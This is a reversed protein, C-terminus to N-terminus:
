LFFIIIDETDLVFLHRNERLLLFDSISKAFRHLREQGSIGVKLSSKIFNNNIIMVIKEGTNKM